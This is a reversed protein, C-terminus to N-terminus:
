QSPNISLDLTDFQMYTYLFHLIEKLPLFTKVMSYMLICHFIKLLFIIPQLRTLCSCFSAQGLKEPINGPLPAVQTATLERTPKLNAM